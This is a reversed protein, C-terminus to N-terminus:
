LANCSGAWSGARAVRPSLSRAPIYVAVAGSTNTSFSLAFQSSVPWASLTGTTLLRQAEVGHSYTAPRGVVISSERQKIATSSHLVNYTAASTLVAQVDQVCQAKIAAVLITSKPAVSSNRTPSFTLFLGGLIVVTLLLSIFLGLGSRRM